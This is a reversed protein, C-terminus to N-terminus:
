LYVKNDAMIVDAAKLRNAYDFDDTLPIYQERGVAPFVCFPFDPLKLRINQVECFEVIPVIQEM